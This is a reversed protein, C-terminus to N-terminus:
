VLSIVDKVIMLEENTPIVYVKVKSNITSVEKEQGRFNNVDEDIEIGLPALMKCIEVRAEVSKEGLGATFVLADVNGLKVYYSAIYDVLKKYYIKYALEAQLNGNKIADEIDRADASVESVGLFGSKKNLDNMIEDLNKNEKKAIYEIIAPDFDGSRTGMMLGALPTMGMSTDLSKGDKVACVSAGNGLHCIILNPNEKKLLQGARNAVYKYSIGHFGYKRVGHKKYWEYPLAYLFNEEPMTQHFATDFVAVQKKNPMLKMFEKIGLLNAPNHLPALAICKEIELLVDEDVIVSKTFKEGGHVVRHGVAYIHDISEIIKKELLKEIMTSIAQAHNTIILNYKEKVLEESESTKFKLTFSCDIFNIKDILGDALVEENEANMLQFKLSSSGSNIALIKKM